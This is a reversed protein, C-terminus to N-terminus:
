EAEPKEVNEKEAIEKEVSEMEKTIEKGCNPCFQADPPMPKGCHPCNEAAIDSTLNPSNVRFNVLRWQGDLLKYTAEITGPGKEFTAAYVVTTTTEANFQRTNWSVLIKSQLKGLRNKISKGLQEYNEKSTTQRM